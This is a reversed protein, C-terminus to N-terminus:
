SQREATWVNQVCKRGNKTDQKLWLQIKFASVIRWRRQLLWFHKERSQSVFNWTAKRKQSLHRKKNGPYNSSFHVLTKSLTLLTLQKVMFILFATILCKLWAGGRQCAHEVQLEATRKQRKDLKDGHVSAFLTLLHQLHLDSLILRIFSGASAFPTIPLHSHLFPSPFSAQIIKMRGRLESRSSRSLFDIRTYNRNVGLCRNEYPAAWTVLRAPSLSQLLACKDCLPKWLM